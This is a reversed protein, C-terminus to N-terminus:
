AVETGPFLDREAAEVAKNAAKVKSLTSRGIHTAVWERVDKVSVTSLTQKPFLICEWEDIM